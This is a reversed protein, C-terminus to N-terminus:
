HHICVRGREDDKENKQPFVKEAGCVGGTLKEFDVFMREFGPGKTLYFGSQLFWETSGVRYSVVRYFGSQHTFRRMAGCISYIM